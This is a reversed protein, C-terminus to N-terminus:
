AEGDKIPVTATLITGREDSEIKLKGGLQRLRIQMGPIGVGLSRVQGSTEDFIDSSIGVGQDEVRLSV